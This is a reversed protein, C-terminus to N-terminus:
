FMFDVYKFIKFRFVAPKPLMGDRRFERDITEKDLLSQQKTEDDLYYYKVDKRSAKINIGTELSKILVSGNGLLEIIKFFGFWKDSFKSDSHRNFHLVVDGVQLDDPNSRNNIIREIFKLYAENKNKINQLTM